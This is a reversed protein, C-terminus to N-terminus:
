AEALSLWSELWTPCTSCSSERKFFNRCVRCQIEALRNSGSSEGEAKNMIGDGEATMYTAAHVQIRPQECDCTGAGGCHGAGAQRTGKSM